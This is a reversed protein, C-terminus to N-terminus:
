GSVFYPAGELLDDGTNGSIPMTLGTLVFHHPLAYGTTFM